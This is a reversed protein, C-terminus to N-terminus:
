NRGKLNPNSKTTKTSVGSATMDALRENIRSRSIAIEDDTPEWDNWLALATCKPSWETFLTGPNMTPKFGRALMEAYLAQQRLYLWRLKNYFFTVHGAGMRYTPPAKPTKTTIGREAFNRALAFVRPLERYEAVLHRDCLESPLVLNIRTM